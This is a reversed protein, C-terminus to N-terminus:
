HRKSRYHAIQFWNNAFRNNCLKQQLLVKRTDTHSNLRLYCDTAVRKASGAAAAATTASTLVSLENM